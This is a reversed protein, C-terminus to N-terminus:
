RNAMHHEVTSETVMEAPNKYTLKHVFSGALLLDVDVADVDKLMARHVARPNIGLDPISDAYARFRDDLQYLQLWIQHMYFYTIPRDFVNWYLRMADRMMCAIYSHPQSALFWSSIVGPKGKGFAFFGSGETMDNFKSTLDATPYCTADAWIGGHNALLEFRLLDSFATRHTEAIKWIHDPFDVWDRVNGDHLLVIDNEEHHRLASRLASRVIPPAAEFGQGWYMFVKPATLPAAGKAELYSSNTFKPLKTRLMGRIMRREPFSRPTSELMSWDAHSTDPDLLLARRYLSAAQDINGAWEARKGEKILRRAQTAGLAAGLYYRAYTNLICCSCQPGCAQVLRDPVEGYTTPVM